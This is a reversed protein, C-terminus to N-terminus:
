WALCHMNEREWNGRSLLDVLKLSPRMNIRPNNMAHVKTHHGCNCDAIHIANGKLGKLREDGRSGVRSRVQCACRSIPVTTLITAVCQRKREPFPAPGSQFSCLPLLPSCSPTCSPTNFSSGTSVRLSLYPLVLSDSNAAKYRCTAASSRKIFRAM